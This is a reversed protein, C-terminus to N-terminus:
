LALVSFCVIDIIVGGVVFIVLVLVEFYEIKINVGLYVFM